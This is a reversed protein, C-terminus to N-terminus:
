EQFLKDFESISVEKENLAVTTKLRASLKLEIARDILNDVTERKKLMEASANELYEEPINLMGYQAFQMRTVEKAMEKVDDDTIKIGFQEVLKEKILHWQLEELSKAFNEEVKQADGNANRLMLTRLKEEPFELKGVKETIYKRADLLFRYDSDKKYQEAIGERVKAKFEEETKIGAGPYVTEFLAEDMPGPMYRTIETIEFNFDGQYNDVEEKKIKLLSTMESESNKYAVSPNMKVVDGKKKGEFLAKQADDKMYGPLMVSKETVLGGELVNGEADLQTFIGKVMDGEKYDEVEDYHGGRQQYMEVQRNITEDDVKINYYDVKNHKTLHIDFEPALAVGFKFTFTNGEVMDLKENEESSILEGLMNVKNESLYNGVEKQLIRNLEEALIGTGFQKKVLGQPVMGPRFGPMRVKKAYEKIAKKVAEQYDAPEIVATLEANLKDINELTINM